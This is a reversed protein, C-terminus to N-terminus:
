CSCAGPFQIVYCIFSLSLYCYSISKISVMKNKKIDNNIDTVYSWLANQSTKCIELSLKDMEEMFSEFTININDLEDLQFQFNEVEDNTNRILATPDLVTKMADHLFKKEKIDEEVEIEHGSEDSVETTKNTSNRDDSSMDSSPNTNYLLAATVSVTIAM